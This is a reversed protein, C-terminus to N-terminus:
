TFGPLAPAIKATGCTSPASTPPALKTASSKAAIQSAACAAMQCGYRCYLRDGTFRKFEPRVRWIVARDCVLLNKSRHFSQNKGDVNQNRQGQNAHHKQLAGFAAPKTDAAAAPPAPPPNM